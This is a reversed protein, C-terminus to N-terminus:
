EEETERWLSKFGDAVLKFDKGKASEEVLVPPPDSQGVFAKIHDEYEEKTLLSEAETPSVLKTEFAKEGLLMQLRRQARTEDKWVRKGRKGEIVKLGPIKDKHGKVADNLADAKLAKYWKEVMPWNMLIFTRQEPTLYTAAPLNMEVPPELHKRFKAGIVSGVFKNYEKCNPKAKCWLCTKAGPTRPNGKRQSLTHMRSAEKGFDLLEKLSITWETDGNTVRPQRIIIRIEDIQDYGDYRNVLWLWMGLAYIRAQENEVADVPVYGYKWDLITLRYREALAVDTTGFEGPMWNDLKVRKEVFLRGPLSDVYDIGEELYRVMHRDVEIDFGEIKYSKGLYGIPELKPEDLCEAVITHFM